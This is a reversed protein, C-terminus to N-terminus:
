QKLVPFYRKLWDRQQLLSIFKYKYNDTTNKRSKLRPELQQNSSQTVAKGNFKCNWLIIHWSTNNMTIVKYGLIEEMNYIQERILNISETTDSTNFHEDMIDIPYILKPDCLNETNNRVVKVIKGTYNDKPLKSNSTVTASNNANVKKESINAINNFTNVKITEVKHNRSTNRFTIEDIGSFSKNM